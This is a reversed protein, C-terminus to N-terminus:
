DPRSAATHRLRRAKMRRASVVTFAGLAGMFGYQVFPSAALFHAVSMRQAMAIRVVAELGLGVGWVGTMLRMGRRFWPVRWRQEWLEVAEGNGGAGMERALYFVLPRRLMLSALFVLGVVGSVLSERVLMLRDGGGVAILLLALSGAVLLALADVRRRRWISWVSELLPPTTALVLATVSDAHPRALVYILWPAFGNVLLTRAIASRTGTHEPAPTFASDPM